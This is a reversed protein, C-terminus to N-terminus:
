VKVDTNIEYIWLGLSGTMFLFTLIQSSLNDIVFLVIFLFSFIWTITVIITESLRDKKLKM